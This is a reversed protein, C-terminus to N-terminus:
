READGKGRANVGTPSPTDSWVGAYSEVEHQGKRAVWDGTEISLM